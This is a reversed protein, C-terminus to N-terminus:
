LAYINKSKGIDNESSAENTSKKSTSPDVNRINTNYSNSPKNSSEPNKDIEINSEGSSKEALKGKKLFFGLRVNCFSAL